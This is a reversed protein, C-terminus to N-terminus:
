QLTWPKREILERTAELVRQWAEYALEDGVSLAREARSHVYDVAERGYKIALEGALREAEEDDLLSSVM